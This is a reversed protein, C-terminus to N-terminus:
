IKSRQHLQLNLQDLIEDRRAEYEVRSSDGWEYLEGVWRLQSYTRKQILQNNQNYYQKENSDDLEQMSRTM